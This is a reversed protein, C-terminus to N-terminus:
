NQEVIKIEEETLSYLKYVLQDIEKEVARTDAKPNTQKLKLIKDVLKETKNQAAQSLEVIPLDEINGSKMIPFTERYDTFVNKFYFNLLSSNLLGLLSKISYNNNTLETLCCSNLVYNQNFDITFTLRVGVFKSILKEPLLFIREDRARDLEEPIYLVFKSNIPTVYKEIDSGIILQKYRSDLKSNSLYKKDNGTTLGRWIKAYNSLKPLVNLKAIITSKEKNLSILFKKDKTYNALEILNVPYSKNKFRINTHNTKEEKSYIIIATEVNADEFVLGVNYIEQISFNDLLYKRL